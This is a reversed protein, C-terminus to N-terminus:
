PQPNNFIQTWSTGFAFNEFNLSVSRVRSTPPITLLAPSHLGARCDPLVWYLLGGEMDRVWGDEEPRAHFSPLTPGHDSPSEDSLQSFSDWVRITNDGSGSVICKGNASYALSFVESTHGKLPEGVLTGTKADWIRITSDSSGSVIHQGDPSYAVHWVMAFHGELPVGVAVGTKSNWIRITGDDCGSIIHQGDPSYAVSLDSSCM